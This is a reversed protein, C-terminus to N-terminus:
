YMIYRNNISDYIIDGDIAGEAKNLAKLMVEPETHAIKHKIKYKYIDYASTIM